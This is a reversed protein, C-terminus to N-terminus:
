KQSLFNELTEKVFAFSSAQCLSERLRKAGVFGRCYASLRGRMKMMTHREDGYKGWALTKECHKMMLHFREELSPPSYEKKALTNKIEAFLWPNGLVGRGLMVGKVGTEEIRSKVEQASNLDGNGIIPISVQSVCNAIVEWNAKGRYGQSRTRGHIAIAEIGLDELIKCIEQANISNYDWGIRIKATVPVQYQVAKIVEKVVKILLPCDRLLASGGNKAVVKNVPCGFNLDIFDPQKEEVMKKAAEGLSKGDSGFLQIGLPRQSDTFETYHRTRKDAKLIGEASVFETLMVDAGAEKCIQRFVFDTVGAMPALYLPPIGGQFWTLRNM